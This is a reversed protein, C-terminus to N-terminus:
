VQGHRKQFPSGYEVGRRSFQIFLTDRGSIPQEIDAFGM